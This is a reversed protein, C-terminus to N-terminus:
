NNEGRKRIEIQLAVRADQIIRSDIHQVFEDSYNWFDQILAHAILAGTESPELIKHAETAAENIIKKNLTGCIKYSQEMFYVWMKAYCVANICSHEKDCLAERLEKLRDNFIKMTDEKNM